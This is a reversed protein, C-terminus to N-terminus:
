GMPRIVGNAEPPFDVKAYIEALPIECGISELRLISESDSLETMLWQEGQRVYREVRMRDQAIMVYETLSPIRRYHAFKEGRDYAETSPSLVEIIVQPNLLTDLSNQVRQREGCLAVLDPYAYLGTEEVKIQRDAAYAYCPRDRIQSGIALSLNFTIQNHNESTGAMAYIYGNIYESKYEAKRELELYEEPTYQRLQELATM